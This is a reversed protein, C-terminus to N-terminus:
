FSFLLGTYGLHPPTSIASHSGHDSVRGRQIVLGVDAIARVTAVDHRQVPLRHRATTSHSQDTQSIGNGPPMLEAYEFCDVSCLL